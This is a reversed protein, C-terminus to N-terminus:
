LLQMEYLFRSPEKQYGNMLNSYSFHLSQQARTIAVFCNRREEEVERSKDGKKKSMWSPFQDEVMGILYVHDFEMGKSAHITYCPIAGKSPEPIKSRLDLEQLLHHLSIDNKDSQASILKVLNKWSEKEEEYENFIGEQDPTLNPLTDLWDFALEQFKQYNLREVLLSIVGEEILKQLPNNSEIRLLVFNSWSRLYDGGDVGAHSMIERVNLNIGELTFFSKCVMRLHEQSMRSNALRLISHLWQISASEFENKRTALYGQISHKELALVIEELLKKTRALVVCKSRTDADRNAISSAVWNAEEEFSNFSQVTIVNSNAQLKKAKLAKKENFRDSNHVILKNAIEVVDAPCRYNEPLQLFEMKFDKRLEYLREPKAGNWQYIIQDDDAVVFVNKTEKNILQRLIKYQFLNTDQFEDVCVFPYIRQFQKRVGTINKLLNLAEAILGPFDLLKREIMLNRYNVYISAILKSDDLSSRKLVEFANDTSIDNEILRNVLPLLKESTLRNQDPEIQDIAQDLLSYRDADQAMITFDPQLGIHHGHQRLLDGAFSHFTTLLARKNVEPVLQEIRERMEAAAKNTYTLALIKFFKDPTEEILRAIRLTLVKTKGSGPGALVLLPGNNWKVAKIQSENLTSIDIM